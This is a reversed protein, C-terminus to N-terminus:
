LLRVRVGFQEVRVPPCFTSNVPGCVASMTSPFTVPANTVDSWCKTSAMWFLLSGSVDGRALGPSPTPVLPPSRTSVFSVALAPTFFLFGNRELFRTKTQPLNPEGLNACNRTLNLLASQNNRWLIKRAKEMWGVSEEYGGPRNRATWLPQVCADLEAHGQKIRTEKGCHAEPKERVRTLRARAGHRRAARLNMNGNFSGRMLVTWNPTHWHSQRKIWHAYTPLVRARKDTSAASKTWRNICLAHYDRHM